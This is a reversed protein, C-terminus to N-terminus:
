DHRRLRSLRRHHEKNEIVSIWPDESRLIFGMGRLSRRARISKAAVHKEFQDCVAVYIMVIPVILVIAAAFCLLLENRYEFVFAMVAGVLSGLISHLKIRVALWVVAGVVLMSGLALGREARPTCALLAVVVFLLFIVAGM